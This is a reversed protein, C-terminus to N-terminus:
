TAIERRRAFVATASILLLMVMVVLGWQSVTPIPAEPCAAECAELTPFNNANGGCCGWIFEECRGTDPNHFFRPCIGDCPGPDAPLSCVDGASQVATIRAGFPPEDEGTFEWEMPGGIPRWFGFPASGVTPPNFESPGMPASNGQRNTLQITWTFADPVAINPVQFSYLIPIPDPNGSDIVRTASESAWLLSGPRGDPGDNAYGM